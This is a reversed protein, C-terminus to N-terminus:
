HVEEYEEAFISKIINCVVGAIPWIIWTIHWNFTLFSWCLYICTVTNWYVSMFTDVMPNKYVAEYKTKKKQTEGIHLVQNYSDKKMSGYIIMGVGVAVVILFMGGSIEEWTENVNLSDLIIPPLISLVCVAIGAAAIMQFMGAKKRKENIMYQEAKQDLRFSGHKWEKAVSGSFVFLLVAIAILVFMVSAGIGRLLNGNGHAILAECFITSVPSIICLLVGFAIMWARKGLASLYSKAEEVTVWKGTFEEQQEQQNMVNKIGLDEALEELNGFESIVIGVAENETKGEEKLETYKDEMMQLLEERARQIQPTNPLNQFMNDLYTKIIDM